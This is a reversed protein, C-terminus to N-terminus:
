WRQQPMSTCLSLTVAQTNNISSYPSHRESFRFNRVAAITLAPGGPGTVVDLVTHGSSILADEVLAQTVLAFMQRIIERHKEWFPGSDRWATIVEQDPQL